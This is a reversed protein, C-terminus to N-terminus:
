RGQREKALEGGSLLVSRSLCGNFQSADKKSPSNFDLPKRIRADGAAPKHVRPAATCHRYALRLVAAFVGMVRLPDVLLNVLVQVVCPLGVKM